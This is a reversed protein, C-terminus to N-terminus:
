YHNQVKGLWSRAANRIVHKELSGEKPDVFHLTDPLNGLTRRRAHLDLVHKFNRQDNPFQSRYEAELAAHKSDIKKNLERNPDTLKHKKFAKELFVAKRLEHVRQEPKM